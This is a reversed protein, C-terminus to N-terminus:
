KETECPLTIRIKTGIGEESELSVSGKYLGVIHKVISLGLGTGGIKRSRSKDVRYFREFVRDCSEKPIGVGSDSVTVGAYGNNQEVTVKVYGGPKNYKVANDVLNLIMQEMHEPNAFISGIEGEVSVTVGKRSIQNVLSDCVKQAILRLSVQVKGTDTTISELESLKLIDNILGIMRETETRIHELYSRSKDPDTIIGSDILESFGKISTLPTKLEHSANAFFESRIQEALRVSTVDTILMIVGDTKEEEDHVVSMHIQLTKKGDPSKIDMSASEGGSMVGHLTDVVSPLHTLCLINQGKVDESVDFFGIASKNIVLIRLDKGFVVLGENM